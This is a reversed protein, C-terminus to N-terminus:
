LYRVAVLTPGETLNEERVRAAALERKLDEIYQAQAKSMDALKELEKRSEEGVRLKEEQKKAMEGQKKSAEDRAKLDESKNMLKERVDDAAKAAVQLDRKLSTVTAAAEEGARRAAEVEKELEAARDTAAKVARANEEKAAQLQKTLAELAARQEAAAAKAGNIEEKLSNVSERAAQTEAIGGDADRLEATPAEASGALQQQLTTVTASRESAVRKAEALEATIRRLHERMEESGALADELQKQIASVREAIGSKTSLEAQQRGVRAENEELKLRLSEILAELASSASRAASLEKRFPAVLVGGATLVGQMAREREAIRRQYEQSQGKLPPIMPLLGAAANLAKVEGDMARLAEALQEQLAAAVDAGAARVSDTMNNAATITATSSDIQEAASAVAAELGLM